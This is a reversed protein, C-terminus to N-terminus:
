LIVVDPGGQGVGGLIQLGVDTVTEATIDLPVLALPAGMYCSFTSETDPRAEPHKDKLVWLVREGTNTCIDRPQFVEGQERDTIWRVM